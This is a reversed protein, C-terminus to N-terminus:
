FNKFQFGFINKMVITLKLFSSLVFKKFLQRLPLEMVPHFGFSNYDPCIEVFNRFSKLSRRADKLSLRIFCDFAADFVPKTLYHNTKENSFRQLIKYGLEPEDQYFCIIAARFNAIRSSKLKANKELDILSDKWKSTCLSCSFSFLEAENFRNFNANLYELFNLTLSDDIPLKKLTFAKFIIDTAIRVSAPNFLIKKTLYQVYLVAFEFWDDNNSLEILINSDLLREPKHKMQKSINLRLQACKEMSFSENRINSLFSYLCQGVFCRFKSNLPDGGIDNRDQWLLDAELLKSEKVTLAVDGLSSESGLDVSNSSYITSYKFSISTANGTKFISSSIKLGFRRSIGRFLVYFM